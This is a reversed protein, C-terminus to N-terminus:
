AEKRLWMSNKGIGRLREPMRDAYKHELLGGFLQISFDKNGMLFARLIYM